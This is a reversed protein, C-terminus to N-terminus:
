HQAKELVEPKLTLQQFKVENELTSKNFPNNLSIYLGEPLILVYRRVFYTEAEFRQEGLVHFDRDLVMISFPMQYKKDFKEGSTTDTLSEVPLQTMRYYVQRYQDYYIGVYDASTRRWKYYEEDSMGSVFPKQDTPFFKSKALATQVFGADPQDLDAIYLDHSTTFSYILKSGEGRNRKHFIHDKEFAQEPIPLNFDLLEGTAVSVVNELHDDATISPRKKTQYRMQYLQNKHLIPRSDDTLGLICKASGNKGIVTRLYEGKANVLCIKEKNAKNSFTYISDENVWEFSGLFGVGNDGNKEFFIRKYLYPKKAQYDYLEIANVNYNNCALLQKGEFEILRYVASQVGISDLPLSLTAALDFLEDSDSSTHNQVVTSGCGILLQALCIILLFHYALKHTKM